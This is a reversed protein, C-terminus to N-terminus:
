VAVTWGTQYRSRLEARRRASAYMPRTQATEMATHRGGSKPQFLSSFKVLGGATVM